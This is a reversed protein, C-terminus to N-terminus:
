KSNYLKIGDKGIWDYRVKKLEKMKEAIEELRDDITTSREKRYRHKLLFLAELLLQAQEKKIILFPLIKPLMKRLAKSTAVYYYIPGFGKTIAHIKGGVKKQLLKLPRPNANALYFIAVWKYGTKTIKSKGKILQFSGDGDIFGAFYSWNFENLYGM